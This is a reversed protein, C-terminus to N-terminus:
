GMSKRGDITERLLDAHGAHQATEAVIHVFVRRASWRVGPPYWPAEPLPHGADLDPLDRVLADTRAAVQRYRELIGALTDDGMMRFGEAHARYTAEDPPGSSTDGHEIFDDWSAETIAVHKIIGGLCLASATPRAAAQEDTLGDVTGILLWRHKALADLLDAREGTAISRAQDTM